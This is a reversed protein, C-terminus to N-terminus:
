GVVFTTLAAAVGSWWLLGALLLNSVVSTWFGAQFSAKVTKHRMQQQAILGGPWGGLADLMHLTTEPTRQRGAKGAADKDLVYAIYSVVSMVVYGLSLVAPVKGVIMLVIAALLFGAGLAFRPIRLPPKRPRTTSSRAAAPTVIRQGAFRVATANLRGKGDAKTDYSILDGEVPRRAALQFAKVHVFARPGGDHPTVFGFGKGDNWNSIRGAQRM